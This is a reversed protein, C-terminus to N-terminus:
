PGKFERKTGFEMWRDSPLYVSREHTNKELIPAYLIKDGLLYEDNITYVNEDDEFEYLLPRIIPNGYRHADDALKKIYNMFLYRVEIAKKIEKRHKEDLTYIEQDNGLKDKHNRFIPFFITMKYYASLLDPDSRGVFGGIDCGVYPVGSISLGLLLPIQLKMDEWSSVSDGSWIAAYKQIGAYGARSLIFGDKIAAKTAMAQFYAYANHVKDHAIKEKNDLTHIANEFTKSPTFAAPENMDLWIGDIGYDGVWKNILSKWWYRVKKNMFDPFVCSGAWMEATYIGGNKTECYNGLGKKFIEDKQDLSITPDIITVVKSGLRHIEDIMKKPDPFYKKDWEFIKYRYMYDIDLYLADVDTYRKYDKLIEIVKNQPFYSYRSISHGLAWDPIKFPKGTLKVFRKIIEKIDNGTIIFIEVASDPVKIKIEDYREVGIDFTLEGTYNVFMGIKKNGDIAIFFPISVYLPDTYKHYSYADTNWMILKTRRREIEFAKEGLGIIHENIGLKKNIELGDKNENITIKQGNIKVKNTKLQNAKKANFNFKIIPQFSNVNIKYIGNLNSFQLKM